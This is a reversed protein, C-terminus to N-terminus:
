VKAKKYLTKEEENAIRLEQGEGILHAVSGYQCIIGNWVIIDTSVFSYPNYNEEM